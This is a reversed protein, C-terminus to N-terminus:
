KSPNTIKSPLQLIDLGLSYNQTIIISSRVLAFNLQTLAIPFFNKLRCLIARAVKSEVTTIQELFDLKKDFIIGLYKTKDVANVPTEACRIMLRLCTKLKRLKPSTVTAFFKIPNIILQNICHWIYLKNLDLDLKNQLIEPSTAKEVLCTDKAFLRPKCSVTNSLGNNYILYFLLGLSSGQLVGLQINGLDSCTQNLSVFQRQDQLYSCIM